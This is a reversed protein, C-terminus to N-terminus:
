RTRVLCAVRGQEGSAWYANPNACDTTDFSGSDFRIWKRGHDTSVDSGTPGVAIATHGNVRTAGSRYEPPAGTVLRWSTGGDRTRRLQGAFGDARRVPRRCRAWAASRPLCARLHRRDPRPPDAHFQREVDCRPRPLPLRASPHRRRDRVVRQPWPGLHHVPRERFAFEGPLAPPMGAPAVVNWSRGGDKTAIIWFKVDEPPDSM